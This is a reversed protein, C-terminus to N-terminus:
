AAPGIDPLHSGFCLGLTEATARFPDSPADIVLHQADAQWQRRAALLIEFGLAGILGVGSADLVLPRGRRELLGALLAPAASTDLRDPLVFPEPM